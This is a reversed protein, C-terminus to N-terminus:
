GTCAYRGGEDKSQGGEKRGGERGGERRSEKKGGVRRGGEGRGGRRKLFGWCPGTLKVLGADQKTEIVVV